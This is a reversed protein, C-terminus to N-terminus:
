FYRIVNDDELYTDLKVRNKFNSNIKKIIKYIDSKSNGKLVSKNIFYYFENILKNEILSNTLSKGGEVLLYNINLKKIKKLVFFLDLRNFKDLPSKILKVNNNM